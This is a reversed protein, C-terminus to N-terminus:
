TIIYKFFSLEGDLKPYHVHTICPPNSAHKSADLDGGPPLGESVEDSLNPDFGPLIFDQDPPNEADMSVGNAAYFEEHQPFPLVTFLM